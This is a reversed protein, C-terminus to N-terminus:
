TKIVPCWKTALKQLVAGHAEPLREQPRARQLQASTERMWLKQERPLAEVHCWVNTSSGPFSLYGPQNSILSIGDYKKSFGHNYIYIDRIEYGILWTKTTTDRIKHNYSTIPPPKVMFFPSTVFYLQFDKPSLSSFHNSGLMVRPNQSSLQNIVRTVLQNM